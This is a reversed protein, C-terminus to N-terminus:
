VSGLMTVKAKLKRVKDSHFVPAPLCLFHFFKMKIGEVRWQDM